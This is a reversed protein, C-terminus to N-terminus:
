DQFGDVLQKANKKFHCESNYRSSSNEAIRFVAITRARFTSYIIASNGSIIWSYVLEIGL